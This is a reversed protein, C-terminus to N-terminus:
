LVQRGAGAANCHGTWAGTQAQAPTVGDRLRGAVSWPGNGSGSKPKGPDPAAPLWYDVKANVDYTPNTEEGFSPLFRVGPPM